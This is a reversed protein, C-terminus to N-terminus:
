KQAIFSIYSLMREDQLKTTERIDILTLDFQKVIKGIYEPTWGRRIHGDIDQYLNPTIEQSRVLKSDKPTRGEIMLFGQQNLAGVGRQLLTDLQRDTLHLASRAYITDFPGDQFKYRMMDAWVPKIKKMLESPTVKVLQDLAEQSFDLAVVTCGKTKVFYRVDRGISSGVDIVKGGVPIWNVCLEAFVNPSDVISTYDKDRGAHLVGWLKQQSEQGVAM